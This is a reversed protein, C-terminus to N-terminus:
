TKRLALFRPFYFLLLAALVGTLDFVIDRLKPNRGDVLLQSLETIMTFLLIMGLLMMLRTTSRGSVRVACWTLLFFAVTHGLKGASVQTGPFVSYLMANLPDLLASMFNVPLLVAIVIFLTMGFTLVLATTPTRTSAM